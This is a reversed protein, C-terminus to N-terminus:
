NDHMGCSRPSHKEEGVYNMQGIGYGGHVRDCGDPEVPGASSLKKEEVKKKM